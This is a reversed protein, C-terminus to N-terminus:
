PKDLVFDILPTLGAWAEAFLGALKPSRVVPCTHQFRVEVGCQINTRKHTLVGYAAEIWM